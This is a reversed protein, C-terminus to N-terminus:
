GTKGVRLAACLQEAVRWEKNDLEYKRLDARKNGTFDDIAARYRLAFDLMDFTSNWRTRVDRPIMAAKLKLKELTEFWM